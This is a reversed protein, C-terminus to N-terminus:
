RGPLVRHVIARRRRPRTARAHRAANRRNNEIESVITAAVLPHVLPEKAAAQIVGDFSRSLRARWM